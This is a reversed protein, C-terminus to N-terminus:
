MKNKILRSEELRFTVYVAAIATKIAIQHIVSAIGSAAVDKIGRIRKGKNPIKVPSSIAPSYILETIKRNKPPNRSANAISSHSKCLLIAKFIILVKPPLGAEITTPNIMAVANREIHIDFVAVARIISGIPKAITRLISFSNPASAAFFKEIVKINLMAYEQLIPPIPVRMPVGGLRTKM